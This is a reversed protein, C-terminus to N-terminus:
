AAQYGDLYGNKQVFTDFSDALTAQDSPISDSYIDLTMSVLSHGLRKSVATIYCGRRLLNVAMSHRLSHVGKHPIKAKILTNKWLRNFNNRNWPKGEPSATFVYGGGGADGPLGTRLRQLAEVTTKSVIITRKSSDSKTGDVLVVKGGITHLTQWIRIERTKFNLDSWHLGLTESIRTGADLSLLILAELTRNGKTFEILKLQEDETFSVVDKSKSVPLKAKSVTIQIAKVKGEKVLDSMFGRFLRYARKKTANSAPENNRGKMRNMWALVDAGTIACYDIACFTDDSLLHKTLIANNTQYTTKKLNGSVEEWHKRLYPGILTSETLKAEALAEQKEQWINFLIRGSNINRCRFRPSKKGGGLPFVAWFEGKCNPVPILSGEGRKRTRAKAM